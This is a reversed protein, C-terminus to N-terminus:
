GQGIFCIRCADYVWPHQPRTENFDTRWAEIKSGADDLSLFWHTNLCEDRLRGNFSEVFANDTPKGAPQLGAYRPQHLGLPQARPLYIGPWQGGKDQRPSQEARIALSGHM